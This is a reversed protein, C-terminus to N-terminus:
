GEPPQDPLARLRRIPSLVLPVWAVTLCCAGAWLAARLSALEGLAGAGAAGLTVSGTLLFRFTANMRGLLGDPTMRQRLSVGLVNDVGVKLLCVTWAAGAVWLRVGGDLLPLLLGFPAVVAGATGLVRGPGLAAALPRALRAGVLVGCGGAAWFLGLAGASLGLERVFLIPLVTNVAALGLNTVAGSVALARLEARDLVHRVGEATRRVLGPKAPSAAGPAGIPAPIPAPPREPPRIRALLLASSLYSAADALLAVPAGLWQVLWGGAGRGAVNGAADVAVLAGNAAILADRDVIQPLHSQSAVDFFVTACGSCLVVAYLHSLTLAGAAWALPVSALLVARVLDAVVMLRRRRMRDVWAGAPLGILLFAATSLASLAGVQGPGADLAAVAVLPLAVMSIQTGLRSTVAAAFLLRFAPRRWPSSTGPATPSAASTEGVTRPAAPAAAPSPAPPEGSPPLDSPM